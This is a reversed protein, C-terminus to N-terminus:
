RLEEIKNPKWLPCVITESDPIDCFFRIICDREVAVGCNACSCKSWDTPIETEDIPKAEEKKANKFLGLNKMVHDITHNLKEEKEEDM